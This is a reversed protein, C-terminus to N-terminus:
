ANVQDSLLRAAAQALRQGDYRLRCFLVALPGPGWMGEIAPSSKLEDYYGATKLALRVLRARDIVAPYDRAIDLARFIILTDPESTLGSGDRFHQDSIGMDALIPFGQRPGPALNVLVDIQRRVHQQARLIQAELDDMDHGDMCSSGLAVAGLEPRSM